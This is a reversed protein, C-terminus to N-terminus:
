LNSNFCEKETRVIDFFTSRKWKYQWVGNLGENAYRQALKPFRIDYCIGLGVKWDGIQVTKPDDGPTLTDSEKFTM